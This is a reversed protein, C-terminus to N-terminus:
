FPRAALELVEPIEEYLMRELEQADSGENALFCCALFFRAFRAHARAREARNPRANPTGLLDPFRFHAFAAATRRFKSSQGGSSIGYGQPPLYPCINLETVVGGSLFCRM